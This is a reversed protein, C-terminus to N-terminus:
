NETPKTESGPLRPPKPPAPLRPPAAPTAVTTSAKQIEITGHESNLAIHSAGNGVMGTITGQTDSNDVKLDAFDSQAEGGGGRTRADVKFGTKDPLILTIDGRNDIQVNGVSKFQVEVPANENEIRVDGSVGELNVDKSRTILRFPGALNDARMSGSEMSLDGDLRSFELDTRASKFSVAKAIKSLNVAQMEGNLRSAGKIDSLSVHDARGGVTVDGAVGSVRASSGNLDLTLNANVDEVSVDGRKASIEVSGDRGTVSVDGHQSSITLAARRPISIDLDTSIPHDGAGTTNANITVLNGSVNLQPKTQDNWKDAQKQSEACIKKRVTVSISEDNSVNVSVDGHEDLIKVNAGIPLDQSTLQDDYDYNHGWFCSQDGFDWNSVSRKAEGAILGSVILLVVLFVGGAGFGPAPAGERQAQWYELLKIVGWLILLVPWYQAFLEGVRHMSIVHMTGLLCVVGVLILVFPGTMSRRRRPTTAPSSM